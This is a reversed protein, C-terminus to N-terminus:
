HAVSANSKASRRFGYYAATRYDMHEIIEDVFKNDKKSSVFEYIDFAVNIKRHEDIHEQIEDTIHLFEGGCDIWAYQLDECANFDDESFDGNEDINLIPEKCIPCCISFDNKVLTNSMIDEM